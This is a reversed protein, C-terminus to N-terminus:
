LLFKKTFFFEIVKTNEALARDIDCTDATELKIISVIIGPIEKLLLEKIKIHNKLKNNLIIEINGYSSNQAISKILYLSYRGMGRDLAHTQFIQGDIVLESNKM